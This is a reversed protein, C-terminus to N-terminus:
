INFWPTVLLYKVNFLLRLSIKILIGTFCLVFFITFTYRVSDLSGLFKLRRPFLWGLGFYLVTIIWGAVPSLNHTPLVTKHIEWSEWPWYWNWSPGRLATGIFILGFWLILGAAFFPVAFPRARFSYEGTSKRNTDVYPILMLGAIM